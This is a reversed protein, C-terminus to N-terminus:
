FTWFSVISYRTGGTIEKVGHVNDTGGSFIYMSGPSPKIEIQHDPFYLEGGSYDDNLYLIGVYKLNSLEEILNGNSDTNDSHPNASAGKQWRQAHISTPSVEKDFVMKVAKGLRDNVESFSNETLGFPEPRRTSVPYGPPAGEAGEFATGSWDTEAELYRLMSVRTDEDVFNPIEIIKSVDVGVATPGETLQEDRYVIFTSEDLLKM